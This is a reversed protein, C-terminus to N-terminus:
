HSRAPTERRRADQVPLARDGRILRFLAFAALVLSIALTDTVWDM